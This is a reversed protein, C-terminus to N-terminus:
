LAPSSPHTASRNLAGTKFVPSRKRTGHTRIEGCGGHSQMKRNLQSKFCQIAGPAIRLNMECTCNTLEVAGRPATEKKPQSSQSRRSDRAGAEAEVEQLRASLV